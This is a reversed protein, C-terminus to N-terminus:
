APRQSEAWAIAKAFDPWMRTPVAPRSLGLFFSGIARSIPSTVVLSAAFFSAPVMAAAYVRRAEADQSTLSALHVIVACPRGVKKAYGVQFDINMRASDGSDRLGAHPLVILIDRGDPKTRYDTNSTSGVLEWSADVVPSSSM